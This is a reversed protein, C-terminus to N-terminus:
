SGQHMLKFYDTCVKFTEWFLQFAQFVILTLVLVSKIDHPMPLTAGRDLLIKIIEYNNRHAALTLPTIDPTFQAINPDVKQWSQFVTLYRLKDLLISIYAIFM